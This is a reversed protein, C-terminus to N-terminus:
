RISRGHEEGLEISEDIVWRNKEKVAKKNIKYLAQKLPSLNRYANRRALYSDNAKLEAVKEKVKKEDIPNNISKFGDGFLENKACIVYHQEKSEKEQIERELYAVKKEVDGMTMWKGDIFMKPELVSNDLGEVSVANPNNREVKWGNEDKHAKGTIKYWAQKLPSFSDYEFHSDRDSLNKISDRAVSVLDNRGMKQAEIERERLSKMEQLKKSFKDLEEKESM